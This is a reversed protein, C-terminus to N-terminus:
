AGLAQQSNENRAEFITDYGIVEAFASLLEGALMNAEDEADSSFHIDNHSFVGREYQSFHTLEHAITRLVDPFGRGKCYVYFEKGDKNCMGTTEIDYKHRDNTLIGNYSDELDLSRVCYPVFEKLLKMHSPSFKVSPEAQLTTKGIRPM